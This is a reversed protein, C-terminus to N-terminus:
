ERAPHKALCRLCVLHGPKAELRHGAAQIAAQLEAAVQGPEKLEPLPGFAPVTALHDWQHWCSEEILALRQALLFAHGGIGEVHAVVPAPPQAWAAAADAAADALGNCFYDQSSISGDVVVQLTLHAKVKKVVRGGM